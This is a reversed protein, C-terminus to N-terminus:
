FRHLIQGYPKFATTALRLVHNQFDDPSLVEVALNSPVRLVEHAQQVASVLIAALYPRIDPEIEILKGLPVRRSFTRAVDFLSMPQKNHRIERLAASLPRPPSVSSSAVTADLGPIVDAVAM